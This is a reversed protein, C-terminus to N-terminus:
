SLTPSSVTSTHIANKSAIEAPSLIPLTVTQLHLNSFPIIEPISGEMWPDIVAVTVSQLISGSQIILTSFYVISPSTVSQAHTVSAPTGIRSAM